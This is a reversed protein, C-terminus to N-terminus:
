WGLRWSQQAPVCVARECRRVICVDRFPKSFSTSFTVKSGGHQLMQSRTTCIPMAEALACTGTRHINESLRVYM